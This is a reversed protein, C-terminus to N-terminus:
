TRLGLRRHQNFVEVASGVKARADVVKRPIRSYAVMLAALGVYLYPISLTNSVTYLIILTGAM